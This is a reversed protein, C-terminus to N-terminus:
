NYNEPDFMRARRARRLGGAASCEAQNFQVVATLNLARFIDIYFAPDFCRQGTEPNDM